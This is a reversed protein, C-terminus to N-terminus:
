HLEITGWAKSFDRRALDQPAIWFTCRGTLHLLCVTPDDPPRPKQSAPAHGLMQSFEVDSGTFGNFIHRLAGYVAPPLRAARSPDGAWTRVTTIMSVWVLEGPGIGLSKENGSALSSLWARFDRRAEEPVATDLGADNARRLWDEAASAVQEEPHRGFGLTPRYLLTQACYAVTVWYQPYAEPGSEAHFFISSGVDWHRTSENAGRDSREGTAQTYADAKLRNLQEKYRRERAEAEQWTERPDSDSGLLRNLKRRWRNWTDASSAIHRAHQWLSLLQSDPGGPLADPWSAIPLPHIPWAGLLKPHAEPWIRRSSSRLFPPLDAPAERPPTAASADVAYLVQCDDAPDGMHWVHDVDARGFFFLIGRDPLPTPFAIDACDIQAFFHHPTGDSSRPWEYHAPLGPLGGFRSNTRGSEHPPYPRHLLVAERRYRRFLHDFESEARTSM